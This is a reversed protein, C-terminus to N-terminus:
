KATWIWAGDKAIDRTVLGQHRVHNLHAVTEALALGYTADDITRKFLLPFCEPARRPEALFALLRPLAKEHNEILQRLRIPVGTFPMKHGPLALHRTTALDALRTCSEIWDGLPDAEPETAYVGINSSIGPIIQDGALILDGSWLTAHEPAHGNGIHVDWDRGGIRIRDDQQIRTFGVPMPYVADAFNFPRDARRKALRAQDMGARTYFDLSQPTAKEQVDLTLMRAFLWATRTTILEAGREQFWGVLGAHDPHHHTLLVRRVPKGALPGSLLAEWIDRAARTNIGTDVITWGDGDDLIYINVHNLVMPLPIRAWLIGDAVQTVEGHAPPEAHPFRMTMPIDDPM